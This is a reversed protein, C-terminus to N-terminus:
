LASLAKRATASHQVLRIKHGRIRQYLAWGWYQEQGTPLFELVLQYALYCLVPLSKEYKLLRQNLWAADQKLESESRNKQEQADILEYMSDNLYDAFTDLSQEIIILEQAPDFPPLPSNPRM